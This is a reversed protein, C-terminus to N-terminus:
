MYYLHSVQIVFCFWGAAYINFTRTWFNMQLQFKILVSKKEYFRQIQYPTEKNALPLTTLLLNGPSDGFAM